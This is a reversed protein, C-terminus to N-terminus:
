YQLKNKDISAVTINLNKMKKGRVVDTETYQGTCQCWCGADKKTNFIYCYPSSIVSEYTRYNKENQLGTNLSWSYQMEKVYPRTTEYVDIYSSTTSSETFNMTGNFPQCQYVGTRDQWILYYTAPCADVTAVMNGNATITDSQSDTYYTSGSETHLSPSNYSFWFNDTAYTLRPVRPLNVDHESLPNYFNGAYSRSGDAENPNKYYSLVWDTTYNTENITVRYKTLVANNGQGFVDTYFGGAVPGFTNQTAIYNTIIDNLYLKDSTGNAYYRGHFVQTTFTSGDNSAYVDYSYYMGLSLSGFTVYINDSLYLM